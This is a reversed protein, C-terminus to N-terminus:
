QLGRMAKNLLQTTSVRVVPSQFTEAVKTNVFGYLDSLSANVAREIGRSRANPNFTRLTRDGGRFEAAVSQTVERAIDSSVKSILRDVDENGTRISRDFEDDTLAMLEDFFSTDETVRITEPNFLAFANGTMDRAVMNRTGDNVFGAYSVTNEVKLGDSVPTVFWGGKLTGTRVPTVDQLLSKM